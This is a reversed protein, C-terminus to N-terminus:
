ITFFQGAFHSVQTRDRPPSSGRSSPMAVWELIQAQLIGMSLLAQHAVTWPTPCLCMEHRLSPSPLCPWFESESPAGSRTSTVRSPEGHVTSGPSGQGGGWRSGWLPPGKELQLVFLGPSREKKM